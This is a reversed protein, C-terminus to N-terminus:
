KIIGIIECFEEGKVAEDLFARLALHNMFLRTMEVKGIASTGSRRWVRHRM